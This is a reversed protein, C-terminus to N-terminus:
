ERRSRTPACAARGPTRAVWAAAPPGPPPPRCRTSPRWWPPARGTGRPRHRACHRFDHTRGPNCDPLQPPGHAVDDDEQVVVGNHRGAPQVLQQRGQRVRLHARDTWSRVPDRAVLQHVVDRVATVIHGGDALEGLRAPPGVPPLVLSHARSTPNQRATRASVKRATSPNSSPYGIPPNSSSSRQM